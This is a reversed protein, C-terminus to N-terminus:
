CRAVGDHVGVMLLQACFLTVSLVARRESVSAVIAAIATTKAIATRTCGTVLPVAAPVVAASLLFKVTGETGDAFLL